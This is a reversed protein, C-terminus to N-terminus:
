EKWGETEMADFRGADARRGRDAAKAPWAPAGGRLMDQVSKILDAIVARDAAKVPLIDRMLLQRIASSGVAKCYVAVCGQLMAIKAVLKDENGDQEAADFQAAELLVAHETDVAYIAFTRASGLHQDVHKMDTTAFAIKLTEDVGTEDVVKLCRLLAM